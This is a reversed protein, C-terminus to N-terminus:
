RSGDIRLVDARFRRLAVQVPIQELKPPPGAAAARVGRARVAGGIRSVTSPWSRPSSGHCAGTVRDLSLGALPAAPLLGAPRFALEVAPWAACAIGPALGLVLLGGLRLRGVDVESHARRGKGALCRRRRGELVAGVWAAGARRLRAGLRGNVRSRPLRHNTLGPPRAFAGPVPGHRFGLGSNIPTPIHSWGPGFPVFNCAIWLIRSVEDTTETLVPVEFLVSSVKDHAVEPQSHGNERGGAYSCTEFSCEGAVECAGAGVFRVMAFAGQVTCGPSCAGRRWPLRAVAGPCLGTGSPWRAPRTPEATVAFFKPTGSATDRPAAGARRGAEVHRIVGLHRFSVPLDADVQHLRSGSRGPADPSASSTEPARSRALALMTPVSWAPRRATPM